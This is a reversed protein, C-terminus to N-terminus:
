SVRTVRFSVWNTATTNKRRPAWRRSGVEGVQGLGVQVLEDVGPGGHVQGVQCSTEEESWAQALLFYQFEIASGRRALSRALSAAPGPPFRRGFSQLKMTVIKFQLQGTTVHMPLCSITM